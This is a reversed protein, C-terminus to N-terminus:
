RCHGDHLGKSIGPNQFFGGLAAQGPSEQKCDCDAEYVDRKAKGDADRPQPPNFVLTSSSAGISPNNDGDAEQESEAHVDDQRMEALRKFSRLSLGDGDVEGYHQFWPFPKCEAAKLREDEEDKTHQKEQDRRSLSPPSRPSYDIGVRAVFGAISRKLLLILGKQNSLLVEFLTDLVGIVLFSLLQAASM